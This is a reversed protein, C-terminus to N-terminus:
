DKMEKGAAIVGPPAVVQPRSGEAVAVVDAARGKIMGEYILWNFAYSKTVDFAAHTVAWLSIGSILITGAHSDWTYHIGTAAGFASLWGLFLNIGKTHQNVFSIRKSNKIWQIIAVSMASGTILAPLETTVPMVDTPQFM